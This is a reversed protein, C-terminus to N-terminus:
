EACSTHYKLNAGSDGTHGEGDCFRLICQSSKFLLIFIVPNSFPRSVSVPYVTFHQFVEDYSWRSEMDEYVVFPVTESSLVESYKVRLVKLNLLRQVYVKRLGIQKLDSDKSNM